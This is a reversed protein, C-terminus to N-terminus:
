RSDCRDIYSVFIHLEGRLTAFFPRSGFTEVEFSTFSFRVMRINFNSPWESMVVIRVANILSSVTYVHM